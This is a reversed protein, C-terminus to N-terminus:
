KKPLFSKQRQTWVEYKAAIYNQIYEKLKVNAEMTLNSYSWKLLANMDQVNIFDTSDTFVVTVPPKNLSDKKSNGQATVAISFILAVIILLNKKM